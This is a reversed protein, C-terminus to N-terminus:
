KIIQVEPEPYFGFTTYFTEKVKELLHYIDEFGAGGVNVLYNAHKESIQGKGSMYGALGLRKITYGMAVKGHWNTEVMDKIDPWVSLMKAVNDKETINKFTSGCSPYEVPNNKKRHEIKEFYTNQAQAVQKEDAKQLRLFVRSIILHPNKKVISSRYSFELEQKSLYTVENNRSTDIVEVKEVIQKIENGFAGVNGRVAGGVTSPLGGAWELGTFSNAFSFLIVDDLLHSAFVEILGDEQIKILQEDPKTFWLVAGDFFEDSMLLNAGLGIPLIRHINNKKVFALAELLDEYNQIKLIYRAKGGIKYYLIESLQFNEYINMHAQPLLLDIYM